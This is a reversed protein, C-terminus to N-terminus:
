NTYTSGDIKGATYPNADPEKSGCAALSLAMLVCLALAALRTMKKM